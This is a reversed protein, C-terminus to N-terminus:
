FYLFLYIGTTEGEGSTYGSAAPAIDGTGQLTIM